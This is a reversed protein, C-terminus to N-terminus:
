QREYVVLQESPSSKIVLTRGDESITRVATQAVRGNFKEVQEVTRADIRRLAITTANAYGTIVWDKGDYDATYQIKIPRGGATLGELTHRFGTGAAEVKLVLSYPTSFLTYNSKERNMKWVGIELPEAQGAAGTALIFLAAFAFHRM